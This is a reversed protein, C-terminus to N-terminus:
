NNQPVQVAKFDRRKQAGNNAYVTITSPVVVLLKYNRWNTSSPSEIQHSSRTPPENGSSTVHQQAETLRETHAPNTHSPVTCCIM